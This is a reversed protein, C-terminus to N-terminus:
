GTLTLHLRGPPHSTHTTGTPTTITYTADPHMTTHWGPQHILHHHRDCLLVTNDLSTPGGHRWHHVHHAQCWTPPRDCGPYRCHRDRLVLAHFLPRPM